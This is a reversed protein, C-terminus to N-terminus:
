TQQILFFFFFFHNKLIGSIELKKISHSLAALFIELGKDTLCSCRISGFNIGSLASSSMKSAFDIIDADTAGYLCVSDFCRKELSLYLASRVNFSTPKQKFSDCTESKTPDCVFTNTNQFAYRFTTTASSMLRVDNPNDNSRRLENYYIIPM